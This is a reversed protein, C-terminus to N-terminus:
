KQYIWEGDAGCTGVRGHIRAVAGRTYVAGGSGCRKPSSTPHGTDRVAVIRPAFLLGALWAVVVVGVLTMLKRAM